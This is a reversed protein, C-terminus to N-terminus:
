TVSIQTESGLSTFTSTPEHQFHSFNVTIVPSIEVSFQIEIKCKQIESRLSTFTSTPEHQFQSFNVIIGPSRKIFFQNITTSKHIESGLSTFTSTPEHQFQSFNVTIVPSIEVSFQIKTASEGHKPDSPCKIETVFDSEHPELEISSDPDVLYNRDSM